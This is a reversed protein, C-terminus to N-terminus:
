QHSLQRLLHYIRHRLQKHHLPHYLPLTVPPETTEMTSLKNCTTKFTTSIPIREETIINQCTEETYNHTCSGSGTNSCKFKWSSGIEALKCYNTIQNYGCYNKSLHISCDSGM